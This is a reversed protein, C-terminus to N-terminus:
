GWNRGFEVIEVVPRDTTPPADASTTSSSAGAASPDYMWFVPDDAAVAVSPNVSGVHGAPATDFDARTWNRARPILPDNGPRPYTSSLDPLTTTAL